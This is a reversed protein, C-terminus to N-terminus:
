VGEGSPEGPPKTSAGALPEAVAVHELASDESRHQRLAETPLGPTSWLSLLASVVLSSLGLTFSAGAALM